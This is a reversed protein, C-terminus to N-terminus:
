MYYNLNSNEQDSRHTDRKLAARLSVCLVAFSRERIQYAFVKEFRDDQNFPYVLLTEGKVTFSFRNPSKKLGFDLLAHLQTVFHTM